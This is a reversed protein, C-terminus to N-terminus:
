DHEGSRGAQDGYMQVLARRTLEAKSVKTRYSIARLLEDLEEPVTLGLRKHGTKDM